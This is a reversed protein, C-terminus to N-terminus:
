EDEGILSLIAEADGDYIARVLCIWRALAENKEQDTM